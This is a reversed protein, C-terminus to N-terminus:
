PKVAPPKLLRYEINRIGGTTGYSMFGLPATLKTDGPRLSITRGTIVADIIPKEDIWAMIRDETVQLRLSYWRGREFTFYKRTENDSADWGDISSLGVIDGGWGGLVWTCFSEQVPFTLSAFFDGGQLRAGEFRIEYDTKPFTGAWTIGTMPKGAGLQITGSEVKVDGHEKFPTTKWAGLTKGDYLPQWAGPAEGAVCASALLLATVSLRRLM